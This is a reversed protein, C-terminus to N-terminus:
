PKRRIDDRQAGPFKGVMNERSRLLLGRAGRGGASAVRGTHMARMPGGILESPDRRATVRAEFYREFGLVKLVTNNSSCVLFGLGFIAWVRRQDPSGSLYEWGPMHVYIASLKNARNKLDIAM